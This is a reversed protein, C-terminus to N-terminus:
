RSDIQDDTEIKSCQRRSQPALRTEAKIVKIERTADIPTAKKQGFFHPVEVV